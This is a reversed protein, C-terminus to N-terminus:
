FMRGGLPVEREPILLVVGGEGDPVGLTLVDSMFPGIQKPPFNIVAVVLRGLLADKAYYKTAQASSKRVGLAPGFDIRLKYAPKRAEPFDHVEVIRGVRIDIKDFDANSLPAPESAMVYSDSVSSQPGGAAQLM